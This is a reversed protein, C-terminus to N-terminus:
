PLSAWTSKSAIRCARRSVQFSFDFTSCVILAPDNVRREIVRKEVRADEGFLTAVVAGEVVDHM